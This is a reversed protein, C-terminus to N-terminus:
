GIGAVTKQIGAAAADVMAACQPNALQAEVNCAEYHYAPDLIIPLYLSQPNARSFGRKQGFEM